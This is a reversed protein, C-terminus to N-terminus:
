DTAPFLVTCSCYKLVNIHNQFLGLTRSRGHRRRLLDTMVEESTARDMDMAMDWQNDKGHVRHM